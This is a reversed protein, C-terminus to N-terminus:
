NICLKNYMYINATFLKWDWETGLDYGDQEPNVGIGIAIKYYVDVRTDFDYGSISFIEDDDECFKQFRREKMDGRSIKEDGM